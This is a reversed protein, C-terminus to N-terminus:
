AARRSAPGGCRIPEDEIVEVALDVADAAPISDFPLDVAIGYSLWDLPAVDAGAGRLTMELHSVTSEDLRGEGAILTLVNNM